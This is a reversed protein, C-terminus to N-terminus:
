LIKSISKGPSGYLYFDNEHYIDSKISRVGMKIDLPIGNVDFKLLSLYESHFVTLPLLKGKLDPLENILKKKM